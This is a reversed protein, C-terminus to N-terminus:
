QLLARASDRDARVLLAIPVDFEVQGEQQVGPVLRWGRHKLFADLEGSELLDRLLLQVSDNISALLEDLSEGQMTLGLPRCVGLWVGSATRAVEWQVQGNVEVRVIQKVTGGREEHM